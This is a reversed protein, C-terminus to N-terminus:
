ASGAHRATREERLAPAILPGQAFLSPVGGTHLFIATDRSSLRGQRIWGVLGSLGKGTYVPDMVIGERRAIMTLAETGAPTPVGYAEGIYGDDLVPAASPPTAIGLLGAAGRVKEAIRPVMSDAPQQVSIGVIQYGLGLLGAGLILGAQTTGSGTALFLHTPRVDLSALQRALEVSAAVFGIAALPGSAYRMDLLYPRRGRAKLEAMIGNMTDVSLQSYPDTTDIFTVQAGFLVDLLLNGQVEADPKGRLVAYLDLGLKAAAASTMRVMNSQAAASIVIADAGQAIADAMLFELKRPKNGGLAFGTLDDRKVLIRPGGLHESLRPAEELPTPLQALSVRPLRRLREELEAVTLGSDARAM